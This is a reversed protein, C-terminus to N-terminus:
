QGPIAPGRPVGFLFTLDGSLRRSWAGANHEARDDVSIQVDPPIAAHKLNDALTEVESVFARNLEGVGYGYLKQGRDPGFEQTGVGLSVRRGAAALHQSDRLLRGNGVQLSPSELIALRFVDPRELLVFLAAIAGYSFGAIGTENPDKTVRYLEAVRPMAETVLFVPFSRGRPEGAGAHTFNDPYPVYELYRSRAAARHDEEIAVVVIPEITGARVLADLTADLGLSKRAPGTTAAFASSGDLLYLVPFRHAVQDEASYSPPTWIHLAVERSLIASEIRITEVKGRSPSDPLTSAAAQIASSCTVLIVYVLRWRASTTGRRAGAHMRFWVGVNLRKRSGTGAHEHRRCAAATDGRLTTLM